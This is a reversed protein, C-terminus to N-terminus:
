LFSHFFTYVHMLKLEKTMLYMFLHLKAEARAVCLWGSMPNIIWFSNFKLQKLKHFLSLSRWPTSMARQKSGVSESMDHLPPTTSTEGHFDMERGRRFWTQQRQQVGVHRMKVLRRGERRGKEGNHWMDEEKPHVECHRWIFWDSIVRILHVLAQM